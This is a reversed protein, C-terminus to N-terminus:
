TLRLRKQYSYLNGSMKSNNTEHLTLSLYMFINADNNLVLVPFTSLKIEGEVLRAEYIGLVIVHKNM